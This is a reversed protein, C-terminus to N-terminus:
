LGDPPHAGFPSCVTEMYRLTQEVYPVTRSSGFEIVGELGQAADRVPLAVVTDLDHERANHLRQLCCEPHAKLNILWQPTGTHCVRGILDLGLPFAMMKMSSCYFNFIPGERAICVGAEAVILNGRRRWLVSYEFGKNECILQMCQRVFTDTVRFPVKRPSGDPRCGLGPYQHALPHLIPGERFFSDLSGRLLEEVRQSATPRPGAAAEGPAGAGDPDLFSNEPSFGREQFLRPDGARPDPPADPDEPGLLGHLSSYSSRSSTPSVRQRFGKSATATATAIAPPAAISTTTGDTGTSHQADTANTNTAGAGAPLPGTERGGEGAGEGAAREHGGEGASPAVVAGSPQPGLM